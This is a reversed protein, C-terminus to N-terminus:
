RKQPLNELTRNAFSLFTTLFDTQSLGSIYEDYVGNYVLTPVRNSENIYPGSFYGVERQLEKGLSGFACDNVLSQDLNVEQVCTSYDNTFNMACIVFSAKLDSNLGLYHLVCTMYINRECEWYGHQCTFSVTGNEYEITESKGYIYFNILSNNKIADYSPKFQTTIFKSSYRCLAEIHIDLRVFALASHTVFVIFSLSICLFYKSLKM